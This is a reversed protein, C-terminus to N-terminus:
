SRNLDLIGLSSKRDIFVTAVASSMRSLQSIDSLNIQDFGVYRVSVCEM